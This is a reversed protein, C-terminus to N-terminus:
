FPLTNTYEPLFKILLIAKATEGPTFVPKFFRLWFRSKLVLTSHGHPSKDMLLGAWAKRLHRLVSSSWSNHFVILEFWKLKVKAEVTFTGPCAHCWKKGFFIEAMLSFWFKPEIKVKQRKLIFLFATVWREQSIALHLLVHVWAFFFFLPDSM